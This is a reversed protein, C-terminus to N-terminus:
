RGLHLVGVGLCVRQTLLHTLRWLKDRDQMTQPPIIICPHLQVRRSLEAFRQQAQRLTGVVRRESDDGVMGEPTRPAGKTRQRSSALVQLFADCVVRWVLATSRREANALIQTNGALGM